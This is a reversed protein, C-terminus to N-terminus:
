RLTGTDPPGLPGAIAEGRGRLGGRPDAVPAACTSALVHNSVMGHVPLRATLIPTSQYEGGAQKEDLDERRLHELM